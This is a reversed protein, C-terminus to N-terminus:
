SLFPSVYQVVPFDLHFLGKRNSFDFPPILLSSSGFSNKNGFQSQKGLFKRRCRLKDM